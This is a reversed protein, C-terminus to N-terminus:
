VWDRPEASSSSSRVNSPALAHDPAAPNARGDMGIELLHACLSSLSRGEYDATQQLRELLVEPVTVNIRRPKRLMLQAVVMPRYFPAPAHVAGDDGMQSHHM